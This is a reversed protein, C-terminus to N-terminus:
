ATKSPQAQEGSHSQRKASLFQKLKSRVGEIEEETEASQLKKAFEQTLNKELDEFDKKKFKKKGERIEQLLMQQQYKLKSFYMGSITLWATTSLKLKQNDSLNDLNALLKKRQKEPFPATKILTALDVDAM